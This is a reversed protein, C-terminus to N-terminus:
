RVSLFADLEALFRYPKEIHPWHGTEEIEVVSSSPVAALFRHVDSPPSLPDSPGHLIRTPCSIRHLDASPDDGITSLLAPFSGPAGLSSMVHVMLDPDLEEPKDLFPGLAVKLLTPSAAVRRAIPAPMPLGVTLLESLLTVVSRPHARVTRIPQRALSTLSLIPGGTIVLKDVLDPHDAALRTAVISGMSHGVLTAREIGVAACTAAVAAALGRFSSQAYCFESGGFGPLDIAVARRSEAVVPLIQVFWRWSAAIGHLFIVVEDSGSPNMDVLRVRKGDVAVDRTM